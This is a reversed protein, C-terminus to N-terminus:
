LFPLPVKRYCLQPLFLRANRPRLSCPCISVLGRVLLVFVTTEFTKEEKANKGEELQYPDLHSGCYECFLDQSEINFKMQGGCGPCSLM